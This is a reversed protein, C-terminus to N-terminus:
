TGAATSGRAEFGLRAKQVQCELEPAGSVVKGMFWAGDM